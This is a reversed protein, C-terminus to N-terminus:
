MTAWQSWAFPEPDWVYMGEVVQKLVWCLSAGLGRYLAVGGGGYLELEGGMAGGWVCDGGRM